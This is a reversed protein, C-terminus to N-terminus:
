YNVECEVNLGARLRKMDEAKNDQTFEIRVPIRQEVKVFNGASNDQPLLSVSAGTSASLSKVIGKFVVNPIADVKIEVPMGEHINATQTEKYNAIVWVDSEDVIEVMTQGPQVLQGVQINKHSTYGDCPATIITYSLNLNALDLAAQALEIGANNQTLRQSLEERALATSQRQRKLTEYKAKMAEYNTKVGDYQQRTVANQKLLNEYRHFDKEANEMVIRAEEITAENVAINNSITSITSGTVSKGAIANQYDANAQALRLRFESDEIIVLTDGKNVHMYEEFRVEKIFGPVRSNVPVIHQNIQANDTYEVKGLHIFKSAVWTVGGLLVIVVLVGSLIKKAKKKM